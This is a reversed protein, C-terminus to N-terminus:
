ANAKFTWRSNAWFNWAFVLIVAVLKSLNHDLGLGPNLLGIVLETLSLGVGSITVYKALGSLEFGQQLRRYTWFSNALYGFVAATLYSFLTALYISYHHQLYFFNLLYFDIATAVLGVLGFKVVDRLWTRGLDTTRYLRWLERLARIIVAPKAGTTQGTPRPLHTVPVEAFLQGNKKLRILLEASFTAGGSLVEVNDLATRHFLKFACDIDKVGLGFFADVLRGWLRANVLRFFPDQRQARYGIVVRHKDTRALLKGIEALDFQSDADSFFLWDSKAAKLGRWVTQGYGLNTSNNILKISPNTIAAQRVLEATRDNSGDNVILIELNNTLQRGAKEAAELVAQINGEENYAPFVLSLSEVRKAVM